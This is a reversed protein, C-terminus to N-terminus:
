VKFLCKSCAWNGLLNSSTNSSRQIGQFNVICDEQQLLQKKPESGQKVLCCAVVEEPKDPSRTDYHHLHIDVGKNRTRIACFSATPKPMALSLCILHEFLLYHITIHTTELNFRKSQLNLRKANRVEFGKYPKVILKAQGLYLRSAVLDM